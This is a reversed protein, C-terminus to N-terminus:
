AVAQAKRKRRWWGLLGGSAFILGPVGSGVIPGPVPDVTVRMDLLGHATNGESASFPGAALVSVVYQGDDFSYPGNSLLNITDTTGASSWSWPITITEADGGITLTESISGSAPNCPTCNVGVTFSVDNLLFTGSSSISSSVSSLSLIDYETYPPTAGIGDETAGASTYVANASAHAAFAVSWGVFVVLACIGRLSLRLVSAEWLILRVEPAMPMM